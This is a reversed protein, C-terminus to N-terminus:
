KASEMLSQLANMKKALYDLEKSIVQLLVKKVNLYGLAVGAEVLAEAICPLNECYRARFDRYSPPERTAYAIIVPPKYRIVRKVMSGLEEGKKIRLTHSYGHPGIKLYANAQKTLVVARVSRGRPAGAVDLLMNADIGSCDLSTMKLSRLVRKPDSMLTKFNLELIGFFECAVGPIRPWLCATGGDAIGIIGDEGTLFEVGGWLDPYSKPAPEVGLRRQLEEAEKEFVELQRIIEPKEEEDADEKLYDQLWDMSSKALQLAEPLREQTSLIVTPPDGASLIYGWPATYLSVLEGTMVAEGYKNLYRVAYSSTDFLLVLVM